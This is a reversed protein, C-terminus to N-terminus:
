LLYFFCKLLFNWFLVFFSEICARFDTYVIQNPNQNKKLKISALVLELLLLKSFLDWYHKEFYKFTRLLFPNQLFIIYNKFIFIYFMFKVFLFLRADEFIFVTKTLNMPPTHIYM